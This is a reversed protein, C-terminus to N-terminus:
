AEGWADDIIKTLNKVEVQLADREQVVLKYMSNALAIEKRLKDIEDAAEILVRPKDLEACVNGSATEHVTFKAYRLQDTLNSM